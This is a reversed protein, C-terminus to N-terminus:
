MQVSYDKCAWTLVLASMVGRSTPNWSTRRVSTVIQRSSNQMRHAWRHLMFWAHWKEVKEGPTLTNTPNTNSPTCTQQLLPVGHRFASKRDHSSPRSVSLRPECGQLEVLSGEAGWVWCYSWGARSIEPLMSCEAPQRRELKSNWNRSQVISLWFMVIEELIQVVNRVCM